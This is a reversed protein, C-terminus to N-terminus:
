EGYFEDDPLSGGILSPSFELIINLFEEISTKAISASEFRLNSRSIAGSLVDIPFNMGLDFALEAAEEPDANVSAISAELDTLLQEVLSMELDGRYFVGAQPFSQNGTYDRYKEQVDLVRMDPYEQMLLSLSPEAVLVIREANAMCLSASTQTSDVYTIEPQLQLQDFLYRCIIDPMQGQGFIVVEQSNLDDWSSLQGERSALYYNGWVVIAGLRYDSSSQFLKVGLNLPAIIADYERSSFGAVLPDAGIVVDVQYKTDNQLYLQTLQTSGKTVLLTLNAKRQCGWLFLFIILCVFLVTLKKMFAMIANSDTMQGNQLHTKKGSLTKFLTNLKITAGELM